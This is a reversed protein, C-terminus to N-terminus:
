TLRGAAAREENIRQRKRRATSKRTKTKRATADVLRSARDNGATFVSSSPTFPAIQYKSDLSERRLSIPARFRQCKEAEIEAKPKKPPHDIIYKERDRRAWMEIEDDWMRQQEKGSLTEKDALRKEHRRQELSAAEREELTGAIIARMWGYSTRQKWDMDIACNEVEKDSATGQEDRRWMLHRRGVERAEEETGGQDRCVQMMTALARQAVKREDQRAAETEEQLRPLQSNEKERRDSDKKELTAQDPIRQRTMYSDYFFMELFNREWASHITTGDPRKFLGLEQRGDKHPGEELYGYGKEYCKKLYEGKDSGKVHGLVVQFKRYDQVHAGAWESFWQILEEDNWRIAEHDLKATEYSDGVWEKRGRPLWIEAVVPAEPLPVETDWSEVMLGWPERERDLLFLIETMIDAYIQLHFGFPSQWTEEHCLDHIDLLWERIRPRVAIKWTDRHKSPLHVLRFWRLIRLAEDPHYMMLSVTLLIVGGHPFWRILHPHYGEGQNMPSLSIMWVNIAGERSALFKALYPLQDPRGCSEHIIVVGSRVNEIFHRWSGNSVAEYSGIDQMSYIMDAENTKLFQVFFDHEESTRWRLAQRKTDDPEYQDCNAPNFSLFFNKKLPRESTNNSGILRDFEISFVERFVVNIPKEVPQIPTADIASQIERYKKDDQLRLQAIVPSEIQEGLYPSIPKHIAFRLVTGAPVQPLGQNLFEWILSHAPWIVMTYKEAMFIGVSM